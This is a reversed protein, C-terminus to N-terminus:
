KKGGGMLLRELSGEKMHGKENFEAGAKELDRRHLSRERQRETNETAMSAPKESTRPAQEEEKGKSCGALLGVILAVTIVKKM